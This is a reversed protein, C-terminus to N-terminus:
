KLARALRLKELVTRQPDTVETSGSRDVAILVRGPLDESTSRAVVPQLAILLWLLCIVALRLGLLLLATLRRILRLEYRYLWLVLLIPVLGLLALLVTQTGPGLEGWRPSLLLAYEDVLPIRLMAGGRLAYIWNRRAAPRLGAPPASCR